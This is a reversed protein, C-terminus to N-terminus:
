TSGPPSRCSRALLHAKGGSDRWNIALPWDQVIRECSGRQPRGCPTHAGYAVDWRACNRSTSPGFQEATTAALLERNRQETRDPAPTEEVLEFEDEDAAEVRAAARDTAGPRRRVTVQLAGLAVTLEDIDEPLTGDM